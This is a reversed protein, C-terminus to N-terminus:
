ARICGRWWSSRPYGVPSYAAVARTREKSPAHSFRAGPVHAMGLNGRGRYTIHGPSAAVAEDGIRHRHKRKDVHPAVCM